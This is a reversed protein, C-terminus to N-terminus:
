VPEGIPEISTRPENSPKEPWVVAGPTEFNTIDRLAQRYVRWEEKLQASLPSDELQTWDCQLLYINRQSRINEWHNEIEIQIEEETKERVRQYETVGEESIVLYSGDIVSNETIQAPVFNYPYWGFQRLSQDDLLDFNSINGWSPPLPRPFGKVERNEVYVYNM